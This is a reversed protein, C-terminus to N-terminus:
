TTKTNTKKTPTNLPPPNKQNSTYANHPTSFPITTGILMAIQENTLHQKSQQIDFLQADNLDIYGKQRFYRTLQALVLEN